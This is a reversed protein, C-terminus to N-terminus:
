NNISIIYRFRYPKEMPYIHFTDQNDFIRCLFYIYMMCKLTIHLYKFLILLHCKHFNDKHSGVFHSREMNTGLEFSYMWRSPKIYLPCCFYQIYRMGLSCPRQYILLNSQNHSDQKNVDLHSLEGTELAQYAKHVM